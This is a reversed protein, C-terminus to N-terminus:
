GETRALLADLADAARAARQFPDGAAGFVEVAVPGTWGRGLLSGLVREPHLEGGPDGPWTRAAFCDERLDAVVPTAPGDSVQVGRVLHAPVAEVEAVDGGRRQHHWTDVVVGANAAGTARAVAAAERVDWLPSWGFAEIQVAVGREGAAACLRGMAEVGAGREWREGPLVLASVAAAGVAAAMDLEELIQHPVGSAPWTSPDCWGTVPDLECVGLALEHVLAAVHDLSRGPRDALWARLHRPRLSVSDFGAGAAAVLHEEVAVGEMTGAPLVRVVGRATGPDATAGATDSPHRRDV